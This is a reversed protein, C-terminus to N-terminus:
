MENSSMKAYHYVYNLLYMSSYCTFDLSKPSYSAFAISFCFIYYVRWLV